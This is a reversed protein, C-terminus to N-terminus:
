RSCTLSSAAERRDVGDRGGARQWAARRRPVGPIAAGVGSRVEAQGRAADADDRPRRRLDTRDQAPPALVAGARAARQPGAAGDGPRVVHLRAPAGVGAALRDDRRRHRAARGPPPPGHGSGAHPPGAAVVADRLGRGHGRADRRCGSVVVIYRPDFRSVAFGEEVGGREALWADSVGALSPLLPEVKPPMEVRMQVGLRELHAVTTRMARHGSGDISFHPLFVRADEGLTVFTLGYDTFVHLWDKSAQYVVPLGGYDDCRELFQAVLGEAESTPGIPEGLAVWTHGHVGYMLCASRAPNWLLAQDGLLVLPGGPTSTARALAAAEAREPEAPIVMAPRPRRTLRAVGLVTLALIVGASARLFRSMDGYLDVWWWLEPRYDLDRFAFLGLGIAAGVIALTSTVWSPSFPVDLM